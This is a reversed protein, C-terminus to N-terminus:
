QLVLCKKDSVPQVMCDISLSIQKLQVDLYVYNQGKTM